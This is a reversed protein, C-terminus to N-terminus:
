RTLYLTTGDSKLLPSHVVKNEDSVDIYSVGTDRFHCHIVSPALIYIYIYIVHINAHELIKVHLVPNCWKYAYYNESGFEIFFLRCVLM